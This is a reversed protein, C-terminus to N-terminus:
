KHIVERGYVALIQGLALENQATPPVTRLIAVAPELLDVLEQAHTGLSAYSYLSHLFKSLQGWAGPKVFYQWAVRVNEIEANILRFAELQKDSKSDPKREAM